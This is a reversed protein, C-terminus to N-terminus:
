ASGALDEPRDVDRPAPGAVALEHLGLAPLLDRAGVDAPGARLVDPWATAPLLVPHGPGDAYRARWAAGPAARWADVVARVVAPDVGPQDGLLVVAAATGAPLAGLGHQLSARLGASPDPTVAVAAGTATAAAVVAPDDPVVTVVELGAARAVAVVHALLPTGRLEALVKRGGFRTGRGAALVLATVAGPGTGDATM